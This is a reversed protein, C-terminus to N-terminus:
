DEYINYTKWNGDLASLYDAVYNSSDHTHQLASIQNAEEPSAEFIEKLISDGFYGREELDKKVAANELITKIQLDQLVGDEHFRLILNQFESVSQLNCGISCMYGDRGLYYPGIRTKPSIGGHYRKSTGVLKEVINM